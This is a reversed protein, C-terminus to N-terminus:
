FSHRVGVAYQKEKIDNTSTTNDMKSTGYIAYIDTRKSMAYSAGVQIGDLDFKTESAGPLVKQDGTTYLAFATTKGFPAKVGFSHTTKDSLDSVTDKTDRNAYIYSLQAVGLNYSGAIMVEKNKAEVESEALTKATVARSAVAYTSAGTTATADSITRQVFSEASAARVASSKAKSNAMAAAFAIPGSAYRIAVNNGSTTTESRGETKVSNEGTIQAAVTLGNFTPSLYSITNNNRVTYSTTNALALRANLTATANAGIAQNVLAIVETSPTANSYTIAGNLTTLAALEAATDIAGAAHAGNAATIGVKDLTTNVAGIVYMADGAVNPLTNPNFTAAIGHLPSYITGVDVRGFGGELGVFSQRNNWATITSAAPNLGTEFLFNAKLGGGLDETGRFGLRSTSELGLGTVSDASLKDKTYTNTSGVFRLVDADSSSYGVDMIGYVTVSSQAQAATAFASLAALAILSKKM